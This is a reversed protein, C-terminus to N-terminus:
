HDPWRSLRSPLKGQAPLILSKEGHSNHAPPECPHKLKHIQSPGSRCGCRRCYISGRYKNLKHTSHTTANGIHLEEYTLPVPRDSASGVGSCPISLWHKLSPDSTHFSNHCRACAVRSGAEHVVHSTTTFLAHMDPKPERQVKVKKNKHGDPLNNLITAM